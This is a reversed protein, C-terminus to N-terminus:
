FICNIFSIKFVFTSEDFMDWLAHTHNRMNILSDTMDKRVCIHTPCSTPRPRWWGDRMNEVFYPLLRILRALKTFPFLKKAINYVLIYTRIIHMIHPHLFRYVIILPATATNHDFLKICVLHHMEYRLGYNMLRFIM